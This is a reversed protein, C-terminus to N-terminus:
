KIVPNETQEKNGEYDSTHKLESESNQKQLNPNYNAVM